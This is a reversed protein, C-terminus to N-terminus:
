HCELCVHSSNQVIDEKNVAVIMTKVFHLIANYPDEFAQFKYMVNVTFGKDLLLGVKLQSLKNLCHEKKTNEMEFM